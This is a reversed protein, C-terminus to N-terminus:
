QGRSRRFSHKWAFRAVQEGIKISDRASFRYHFGAYIRAEIIEDIVQSFSTYSRVPQMLGPVHSDITFEFTDTGLFRRLIELIAASACGHASPYEPHNPTVALPLWGPDPATAANGDTDGAPIATVPRWFNYTYKSDWCAILADANVTTLLAFLRANEELSLGAAVAIGRWARHAQQPSDTWFLGIDTQEATRTSGTARGLAKVENYDQAWRKSTLDPPGPARFQAPHALTWPVVIAVQPAAAPLFGPPTPVWVGPGSGPTYPVMATRRDNVRFALIGAATEQGVAIGNTKAEGDPIMALSAAYKTDLDAQQAPFLAVLVGHAATAAAAEPSAPVIVEPIVGYPDFPFGAIANVADYIATHVLALDLAALPPGKQAIGISANSAHANWDLIVDAGAPGTWSMCGWVILSIITHLRTKRM